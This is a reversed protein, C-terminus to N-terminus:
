QITRAGGSDSNCTAAWARERLQTHGLHSYLSPQKVQQYIHVLKKKCVLDENIFQRVTIGSVDAEQIRLRQRLDIETDLKPFTVSHM